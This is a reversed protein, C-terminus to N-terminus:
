QKGSLEDRHDRLLEAMRREAEEDAARLQLNTVPISSTPACLLAFSQQQLNELPIMASSAGLETPKFGLKGLFEYVRLVADARSGFIFFLPRRNPDAMLCFNTVVVARVLDSFSWFPEDPDGKGEILLEEKIRLIRADSRDLTKRSLDLFDDPQRGNHDDEGIGYKFYRNPDVHEKDRDERDALLESISTVGRILKLGGTHEGMTQLFDVYVEPLAERGGNLPEVLAAIQDATAARVDATSGKQWREM